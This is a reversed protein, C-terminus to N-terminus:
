LYFVVDAEGGELGEKDETCRATASTPAWCGRFATPQWKPPPCDTQSSSSVKALCEPTHPIRVAQTVRPMYFQREKGLAKAQLALM